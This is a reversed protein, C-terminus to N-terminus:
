SKPQLHVLLGQAAVDIGGVTYGWRDASRLDEPKFRYIAYGELQDEVLMRGLNGLLANSVLPSAGNIEVKSVRVNALKLAGAGPDFRLGFSAGFVGQYDRNMLRDHVTMKLETAIQNSQPQLMLSPTTVTVNFVELVRKQLPFKAALKQQLEDQTITVTRPGVISACASLLM